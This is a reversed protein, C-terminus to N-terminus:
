ENLVGVADLDFGASGTQPYPDYVANGASDQISGDGLIDVIRIHSVTDGPFNEISSIDFLTGYGQMHIGAFGTYSTDRNYVSYFDITGYEGVPGPTASYATFRYFRNGDASIEVLALELFEGSFSNEFVAFDPGDRNIIPRDFTITISGGEGLCVIDYASGQAKGLGKEPTQWVADCNPGCTYESYGSAWSLIEGSDMYVAGEYEPVTRSIDSSGDDCGCLIFALIFLTKKCVM